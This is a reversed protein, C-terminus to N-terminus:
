LTLKEYILGYRVGHTSVMLSSICFEEMILDLITSGTLIVDARSLPLGKINKIEEVTKSRYLSLQKGLAERTLTFHHIKEPIFKELGQEVSALTTGTGGISVLSLPLLSPPPLSFSSLHKRIEGVMAGYEEEKVPDSSLFRESFRVIGVPLSVWRVVAGDKGLILETSGGGVDVVLLNKLSEKMDRAVALFSLQAEKAGPIIEILLDFKERVRELFVTANMAERLASTGVAFIKRVGMDRCQGIYQRITEVGKKMAEESLLGKQALGEGLRVVTEAEFLPTLTNEHVEGILLLFTNTGIDISAVRDPSLPPRKM